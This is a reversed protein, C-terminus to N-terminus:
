ANKRRTEFAIHTVGEHNHVTSANLIERGPLVPNFGRLKVFHHGDARVPGRTLKHHHKKLQM